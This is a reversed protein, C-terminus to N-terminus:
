RKNGDATESQPQTKVTILSDQSGQLRGPKKGQILLQWVEVNIQDRLETKGWGVVLGHNNHVPHIWDQEELWTQIAEENAFDQIGEQVVARKVGGCSFWWTNGPGPYYIGLSGM